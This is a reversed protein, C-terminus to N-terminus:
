YVRYTCALVAVKCDSEENSRVRSKRKDQSTKKLGINKIKNRCANMAAIQVDRESSGYYTLVFDHLRSYVITGCTNNFIMYECGPCDKKIMDEADSGRPYDVFSSSQGTKPDFGVAGYCNPAWCAYASPTIFIFLLFSLIIKM